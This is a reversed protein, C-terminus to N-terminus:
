VVIEAPTNESQELNEAPTKRPRGIKAGPKKRDRAKNRTKERELYHIARLVGEITYNDFKHTENTLTDILHIM